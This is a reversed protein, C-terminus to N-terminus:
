EGSDDDAGRGLADLNFHRMLGHVRFEASQEGNLAAGMFRRHRGFEDHQRLLLPLLPLAPRVVSTRRRLSIYGLARRFTM